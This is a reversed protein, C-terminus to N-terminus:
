GLSKALLRAARRIESSRERPIAGLEENFREALSLADQVRQMMEHLAITKETQISEKMIALALHGRQVQLLIKSLLAQDSLAEAEKFHREASEIDGSDADLVALDGLIGAEIRPDKAQKSLEWARYMTTKAQPTAGQEQLLVALTQTFIAELRINQLERLLSFAETLLAHAAELNARDQELIALNCLTISCSRLDGVLRSLKLARQWHVEAQVLEGRQFRLLGINSLNVAQSRKNGLKKQLLLARQLCSEAEEQRGEDARLTGLNGWLIGEQSLNGLERALRLARFLYSEAEEDKGQFLRLLGLRGLANSEQWRNRTLRALALASQYFSEARQNDSQFRALKGLALLARSELTKDGSAKAASLAEILDTEANKPNSWVLRAEGRALLVRCRSLVDASVVELFAADLIAQHAPQPGQKAYYADLILASRVVVGTSAGIARHFIARIEGLMLSLSHLCSVSETTDVGLSLTEGESLFYQQHRELLNERIPSDELLDRAYERISEFMGFRDQTLKRLLSKNVLSRLLIPVLYGDPAQCITTAAEVTFPERFVACQIFLDREEEPLMRTSREISGRLAPLPHSSGSLGASAALEIALPIGEHRDLQSLMQDQEEESVSNALKSLLLQAAAHPSLPSLTLSAFPLLERSTVLIKVNPAMSVWRSLLGAHETLLEFNDLLLLMESRVLLSAGILFEIEEDSRSMTLPISLTNALAICLDERTSIASLDCLWVGGKEKLSAVLSGAFSIALATKGIGGPGILAVLREKSFLARLESLEEDRGFLTVGIPPLNNHEEITPVELSLQSIEENQLSDHLPAPADKIEISLLAQVFQEASQFRKEPRKQLTRHIIEEYFPLYSLDPRRTQLPEHAEETHAIMLELVSTLKNPPSPFPPTGTFLEYLIVGLAYLDSRADLQQGRCQEPSMYAPTGVTGRTISGRRSPKVLRALGFDIIKVIDGNPGPLLLINEPNLDRHVVGAQASHHMAKCLQAFISLTEPLPIQGKQLRQRLTPGEVYEMVYYLGLGEEEGFDYISVFHESQQSLNATLQIETWFREKIDPPFAHNMKLSKIVCRKSEDRELHEALHIVGIGGQGIQKLLRYSGGIVIPLHCSSCRLAEEHLPTLCRPCSMVLPYVLARSLNL